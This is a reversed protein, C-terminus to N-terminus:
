GWGGAHNMLLGVARRADGRQQLACAVDHQLARSAQVFHQLHASGQLGAAPLGQLTCVALMSAAAHDQQQEQCLSTAPLEPAGSGKGAPLAAKSAPTGASNASGNERTSPGESNEQASM